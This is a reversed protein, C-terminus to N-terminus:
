SHSRLRGRIGAKVGGAMGVYVVDYLDSQNMLLAYIGRTNAPITSIEDKCKFEAFRKIFKLESVPM